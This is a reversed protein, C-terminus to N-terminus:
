RRAGATKAVAAKEEDTLWVFEHREVKMLGSGVLCDKIREWGALGIGKSQCALFLCSEPVRGFERVTEACSRVLAVLAYAADILKQDVPKTEAM